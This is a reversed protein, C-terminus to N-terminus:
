VVCVCVYLVEHCLSMCVYHVYVICVQFPRCKEQLDLYAVELQERESRMRLSGVCVCCYSCYTCTCMCGWVGCMSRIYITYLIICYRELEDELEQVRMGLEDKVRCLSLLVCM